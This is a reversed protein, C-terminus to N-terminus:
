ENEKRELLTELISEISKKDKKFSDFLEDFINIDLDFVKSMNNLIVGYDYQLDLLKKQKHSSLRSKELDNLNLRREAHTGDTVIYDQIDLHTNNSRSGQELHCWGCKCNGKHFPARSCAHKCYSSPWTKGCCNFGNIDM